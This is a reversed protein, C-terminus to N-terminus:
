DKKKVLLKGEGQQLKMHHIFLIKQMADVPSTNHFVGSVHKKREEFSLFSMDIVIGYVQSIRTLAEEITTNHFVLKNGKYLDEGTNRIANISTNNKVKDFNLMEGPQMRGLERRKDKDQLSVQVAGETLVIQINEEFEYAKINFMTGLVKTTINDTLVRFPKLTDRFVDFYAEGRLKVNREAEGFRDSYSISSGPKLWVTTGDQLQIERATHRVNNMVTWHEAPTQQLLYVTSGGALLLLVSAAFMLSRKFGSFSIRKVKGTEKGITSFVAERIALTDKEPVANQANNWKKRLLRDAKVPNELFFKEVQGTEEESCKGELYKNLLELDM